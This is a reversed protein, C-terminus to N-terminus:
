QPSYIVDAETEVRLRAAIKQAEVESIIGANRLARLLNVMGIYNVNANM